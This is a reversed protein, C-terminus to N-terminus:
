FDLRLAMQMVRAGSQNAAGTVTAQIRGFTQPTQLNLLPNVFNVNNLLNYAEARFTVFTREGIVRFRKIVSLDTNFFGPGRFANRGSTGISGPEPVSFLAIQQPTFFQVGAGIREVRGISRDTGNYNVLSGVNTAAPGFDTQNPGTYVGSSISMTAGSTWIGLSGIEWGAAVRDLWNPMNGGILKGKGIPLVYSASWNFTHPRDADSRARTLELNYNDLPGTFGGGDTSLTDMTKSWTYNAAFRLSGAQRRLSVQMSDYYTRGANTTVNVNQFQPFNRLYFNSLGAAAYRSNNSTDITNAAAGVSGQRVPTAGIATIAAQPTGFMRVLANTASPTAASNAQFARLENFDNLFGQYIRTQNVNQDLVQKIGRNGVYGVELVTNRMLERQITFNMQLVYPTRFSPDFLSLTAFGRSAPLTLVPSGTAAPLAPNDRLRVDSGATRNPFVQTAQAFGPMNADPDISTGGTVRDYFMGWSARISTKGDKFPDWAFGIRPAFNNWDNSFWANSRRVTLDPIQSVTNILGLPQQDINGQLGDREFPVGFFEYRVGLNLTFNPALRWDDQLYYAYDRFIFNRVRPQGPLFTDLDSNFTQAINSIRGLLNNYMADFRQRDASAIVTSGSPGINGPAANGNDQGLSITPWINADATQYQRTHAYRFGAKLSHKGRLISLNDTIQKVPSNRDSGFGIPVPNTYLTTATSTTLTASILPQGAFFDSRVRGFRVSSQSFGAIFENVIWPKITWNGGASFGSRIGGQTGNPQGPFTQEANNLTDAPTLTKFWSYRFYMRLSSAPNWDTKFTSQDGQNGAPANFRYGSTNLGDGVDTNNPLPTLAILGAVTPDIGLRRPDAAPIDFSRVESTGPVTWRFIGQRATATLVTRNRVVEQATRSGQYNYFFFLKDRGNFLKPILVPGGFSGGFQNQIFKPRANEPGAASKNFFNNANLITNRHFEYLNGSFRNTGSRTILEIQGGASRGHEAKAGNTIIRFEEISDTNTANLALGLRPNVADNVDVGDLTSNNSGQRMGNVRGFSPDGPNGIQVGPQYTALAIPNRALQPLNDIDRLTIARQVTAEATQVRVSGAEVTVSDAVAGVELKVDQRITVGVNLEINTVTSKRFGGASVNLTYVGPQLVPFVYFGQADADIDVKVQTRNNVLSLTAGPIVAGSSDQVSGELRANQVQALVPLALSGALLISFLGRM